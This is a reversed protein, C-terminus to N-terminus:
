RRKPGNYAFQWYKVHKPAIALPFIIRRLMWPFMNNWWKSREENNLNYFVLPLLISPDSKKVKKLIAADAEKVQTESIGWSEFNEPTLTQEELDLHPLMLQQVQLVAEKIKQADFDQITKFQEMAKLLTMLQDHDKEMRNLVPKASEVTSLVKFIGEEENEHHEHIFWVVSQLFGLYDLTDKPTIIQDAHVLLQDICRRIVSHVTQVTYAHEHFVNMPEM